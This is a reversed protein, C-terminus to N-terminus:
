RLRLRAEMHTIGTPGSGEVWSSLGFARLPKLNSEIEDTTADIARMSGFAKRWDDNVRVFVVDFAQEPHAVVARFDAQDGLHGDALVRKNFGPDRGLVVHHADQTQSVGLAAPSFDFFAFAKGLISSIQKADGTSIVAAQLDKPVDETNMDAPPKAGIAGVLGNGLLTRLDRRFDLGSLQEIRTLESPSVQGLVGGMFSSIFGRAFSKNVSVGVAASIDDPLRMVEPGIAKTAALETGGGVLSIDLGDSRLKAALAMGQGEPTEHAISAVGIAGTFRRGFLNVLTMFANPAAYANVVGRGGAMATWKRFDATEDLSKKTAEELIKRAYADSLSVVAYHEGVAVGAKAAGGECGIVKRLGARAKARDSVQVVMEPVIRGDLRVVAFALRSGVWPKVDKDYSPACEEGLMGQVFEKKFDDFSGRGMEKRVEPFTRLVKLADVKQGAPPDLDLTVEAIATSPIATVPLPGGGDLLRYVAYAGAAAILMIAVVGGAVYPIWRRPRATTGPEDPAPAAPEAAAHEPPEITM